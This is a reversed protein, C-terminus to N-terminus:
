VFNSYRDAIETSTMKRRLLRVGDIKGDFKGSDGNVISFAIDNWAVLSGNGADDGNGVSAGNIYLTATGTNDWVLVIYVWQATGSDSLGHNAILSETGSNTYIAVNIQTNGFFLLFGKADSGSDSIITMKGTTDKYVWCEFTFANMGSAKANDTVTLYDNSGDFNYCKSYASIKGAALDADSLSTLNIAQHLPSLDIGISGNDFALVCTGDPEFYGSASTTLLEVWGTNVANRKYLKEEDSRVFLQNAVPSGPFSTGFQIGGADSISVALRAKLTAASGAVDTGLETEIAVIEAQVKNMHDDDVVDVKDVKDTFIVIANPYTAVVSM